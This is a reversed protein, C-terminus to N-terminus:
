KAKAAPNKSAGPTPGTLQEYTDHQGSTYGHAFAASTEEEVGPPDEDVEDAEVDNVYLPGVLSVGPPVVIPGNVNYTGSPMVVQKGWHGAAEEPHAAEIEGLFGAATALADQAVQLRQAKDLPGGANEVLKAADLLLRRTHAITTM